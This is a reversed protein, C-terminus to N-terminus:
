YEGHEDIYYKLKHLLRENVLSEKKNSLHLVLMANFLRKLEARNFDLSTNIDDDLPQIKYSKM